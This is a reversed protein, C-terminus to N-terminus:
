GIDFVMLTPLYPTKPGLKKNLDSDCNVGTCVMVCILVMVRNSVIVGDSVYTAAYAIVPNSQIPYRRTPHVIISYIFSCSIVSFLVMAHDQVM